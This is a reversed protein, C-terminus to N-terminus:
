LVTEEFRKLFNHYQSLGNVPNQPDIYEGIASWDTLAGELQARHTSDTARQIIEDPIDPMEEYSAWQGLKRDVGPMLYYPPVQRSIKKLMIDAVRSGRQDKPQADRIFSRAAGFETEKQNIINFTTTSTNPSFPNKIDNFLLPHIAIYRLVKLMYESSNLNEVHSAASSALEYIIRRLPRSIGAMHAIQEAIQDVKRVYDDSWEPDNEFVINTDPAFESIFADVLRHTMERVNSLRERATADGDHNLAIAANVGNFVTLKPTPLGNKKFRRAMSLLPVVYALFRPSIEGNGGYGVRMEWEKISEPDKCAQIITATVVDPNDFGRMEQGEFLSKSISSIRAPYDFPLMLSSPVLGNILRADYPTVIQVDKKPQSNEVISLPTSRQMALDRHDFVGVKLQNLTPGLRNLINDRGIRVMQLSSSSETAM